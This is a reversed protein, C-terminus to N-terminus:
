LHSERARQTGVVLLDCQQAASVRQLLRRLNDSVDKKIEALGVVLLDARFQSIRDTLLEPECYAPAFTTSSRIFRAEVRPALRRAAIAVRESASSADLAIVAREYCATLPRLVVLVPKESCCIVDILTRGYAMGNGLVIADSGLEIAERLIELWAEGSRVNVSIDGQGQPRLSKARTVLRERTVQKTQEGDRERGENEVVHLLTLQAGL